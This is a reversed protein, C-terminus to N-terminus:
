FINCCSSWKHFSIADPSLMGPLEVFPRHLIYNRLFMLFHNQDRDTHLCSAILTVMHMYPHLHIPFNGDWGTGNEVKTTIAKTNTPDCKRIQEVLLLPHKRGNNKHSGIKIHSPGM